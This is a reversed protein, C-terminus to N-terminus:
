ERLTIVNQFHETRIISYSFMININNLLLSSLYYLLIFSSSSEGNERKRKGM